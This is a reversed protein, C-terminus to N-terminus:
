NYWQCNKCNKDECTVFEGCDQDYGGPCWERPVEPLSETVEKEATATEDLPERPSEGFVEEGIDATEDEPAEDNEEMDNDATEDPKKLFTTLSYGKEAMRRTEAYIMGALDKQRKKKARMSAEPQMTRLLNTLLSQIKDDSESQEVTREKMRKAIRKDEEDEDNEDIQIEQVHEEEEPITEMISGKNLQDNGRPYLKQVLEVEGLEEGGTSACVSEIQSDNRAEDDLDRIARNEFINEESKKDTITTEEHEKCIESEEVEMNKGDKAEKEKQKLIEFEKAVRAKINEEIEARIEPEAKKQEKSSMALYCGRSHERSHRGALKCGKCWWWNKVAHFGEANDKEIKKRIEELKRQRSEETEGPEISFENSKPRKTIGVKGKGRKWGKENIVKVRRDILKELEEVKPDLKTGPVSVVLEMGPFIEKNNFKNLDVTFPETAIQDTMNKTIQGCCVNYLSDSNFLNDEIPLKRLAAFDEGDMKARNQYEQKLVRFIQIRRLDKLQQLLNGGEPNLEQKTLCFKAINQSLIELYLNFFCKLVKLEEETRDELLKFRGDKELDHNMGLGPTGVSGFRECSSAVNLSGDILESVAERPGVEFINGKNTMRTASHKEMYWGEGPLFNHDTWRTKTVMPRYLNGFVHTKRWYKAIYLNYRKAFHGGPLYVNVGVQNLLIFIDAFERLEMLSLDMSDVVNLQVLSYLEFKRKGVRDVDENEFYKFDEEETGEQPKKLEKLLRCRCVAFRNCGGHHGGVANLDGFVKEEYALHLLLSVPSMFLKSCMKCMNLKNSGAVVIREDTANTSTICNSAIWIMNAMFRPIYISGIRMADIHRAKGRIDENGLNEPMHVSIIGPRDTLYEIIEIADVVLVEDMVVCLKVVRVIQHHLDGEKDSVALQEVVVGEGNYNASSNYVDSMYHMNVYPKAIAYWETVCSGQKYMDYRHKGKNKVGDFNKRGSVCDKDGLKCKRGCSYGSEKLTSKGSIHKAQNSNQVLLDATCIARKRSVEREFHFAGPLTLIGGYSEKPMNKIFENEGEDNLHRAPVVLEALVLLTQEEKFNELGPYNEISEIGSKGTCGETSETPIREYGPYDEPQEYPDEERIDLQVTWRGTQDEYFEIKEESTSPGHEIYDIPYEKLVTTSVAVFESLRNQRLIKSLVYPLGNVKNQYANWAGPNEKNLVQRKREEEEMAEVKEFIDMMLTPDPKLRMKSRGATEIKAMEKLAKICRDLNEKNQQSFEKDEMQNASIEMYKLEVLNVLGISNILLGKWMAKVRTSHLSIKYGLKYMNSRILAQITERILQLTETKIAKPMTLKDSPKHYHKLTVQVIAALCDNINTTHMMKKTVLKGREIMTQVGVEIETLIDTLSNVLNELAETLGSIHEVTIETEMEREATFPEEITNWLHKKERALKPLLGQIQECLHKVAEHVHEVSVKILEIYTSEPEKVDTYEVKIALIKNRGVIHWKDELLADNDKRNDRSADESAKAGSGMCAHVGESPGRKEPMIKKFEENFTEEMDDVEDTRNSYENANLRGLADELAERYIEKLENGDYTVFISEDDNSDTNRNIEKYIMEVFAEFNIIRSEYDEMDMIKALKAELTTLFQMEVDNNTRTEIVRRIERLVWGPVEADWHTVNDRPSKFMNEVERPVRLEKNVLDVTVRESRRDIHAVKSTTTVGLSEFDKFVEAAIVKGEQEWEGKRIEIIGESEKTQVKMEGDPVQYTSRLLMRLKELLELIKEGKQAVKEYQNVEYTRIIEELVEGIPTSTHKGPQAINWDANFQRPTSIEEGTENDFVEMQVHSKKLHYCMQSFLEDEYKREPAIVALTGEHSRGLIQVKGLYRYYAECVESILQKIAGPTCSKLRKEPISGKEEGPEEERIEEEVTSKEVVIGERKERKSDEGRNKNVRRKKGMNKGQGLNENM